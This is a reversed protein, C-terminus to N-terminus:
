FPFSPYDESITKSPLLFRPRLLGSLIYRWVGLDEALHARPSPDYTWHLRVADVVIHALMVTSVVLRFQLLLWKSYHRQYFRVESAFIQVMMAARRQGTSAGGMHVVTTVPSFHVQWGANRLRYCLDVEEFYMFFSEDFGGLAQFADRRIALAAGMVWPVIRSYTHRWTRLYHHRLVPVFHILRSLTSKDLFTDLPSPFPYCSQQLTGDLNELRPGVIAARPHRDLYTSLATLTGSQPRTDSNLLLIYQATCRAVAQNAAAGYGPNTRNAHLTVWPYDARVMEASGDSSANDVVVVESPAESQVTALCARLHERTNYNVIAVAIATM